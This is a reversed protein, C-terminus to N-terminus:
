GFIVKGDDDVMLMSFHGIQYHERDVSTAYHLGEEDQMTIADQMEYDCGECM